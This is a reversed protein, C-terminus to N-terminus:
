NQSRIETSGIIRGKSTESKRLLWLVIVLPALSLVFFLPGGQQHLPSHIVRPDVKITLLALVAIRFSNRLIGIALTSIVLVARRWPTRLFLHAALLGTMILVMTSRIGSCEEAVELTLRPMQFITGERWIPVGTLSFMRYFGEASAYQLFHTLMRDGWSPLPILFYLFLLPFAFARLGYSGMTLVVGGLVFTVLAFAPLGLRDSEPLSSNVLAGTQSMFLAIFAICLLVAALSLSPAFEQIAKKREIFFLYIVIFPIILIYSCLDSHFAFRTLEWIFPAFAIFLATLGLVQTAARVKPASDLLPTKSDSPCTETPPSPPNNM